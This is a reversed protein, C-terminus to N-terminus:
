SSCVLRFHGHLCAGGCWIPSLRPLDPTLPLLLPGRSGPWWWCRCPSSATPPASISIYWGRWWCRRRWLLSLPFVGWYCLGPANAVVGDVGLWSLTISRSTAFFVLPLLIFPLAFFGLPAECSCKWRGRSGVLAVQRPSFDVVPASAGASGLLNKMERPSAWHAKFAM